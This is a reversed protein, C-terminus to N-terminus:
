ADLQAEHTQVSTLVEVASRDSRIQNLLTPSQLLRSLRALLRLHFAESSSGILFFVDTLCGRPGGFPIGSSTIALSLFPEGIIGPMPRRPHLLAVGNELATPHLDERIRVAEAMKPADWLVGTQSTNECISDIVSNRTKALFPVFIRDISLLDGICVLEVEPYLKQQELIREVEALERTDSAGIREEFWQHIEARSFKWNGAIRRGPIKDREAMKRVQDPTTHLFAALAALDFDEEAM